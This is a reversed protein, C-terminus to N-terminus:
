YAKEPEEYMIVYRTSAVVYSWNLTKLDGNLRRM